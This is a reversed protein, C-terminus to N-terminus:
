EQLLAVNHEHGLLTSGTDSYLKFWTIGTMLVSLILIAMGTRFATQLKFGYGADWFLHRIGNLMQYWFAWTWGIMALQGIPSTVIHVFFGYEKIGMAAAVLWWILIFSGLILAVGTMRHLISTLMPIRWRYIQLHPSLPRAKPPTKQTM